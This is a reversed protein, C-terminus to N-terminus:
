ASIISAESSSRSAGKRKTMDGKPIYNIGEVSLVLGIDASSRLRGEKQLRRRLQTGPM